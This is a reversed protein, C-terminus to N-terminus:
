KVLWPLPISLEGKKIKKIKNEIPKYRITRIDPVKSEEFLSNVAKKITPAGKHFAVFSGVTQGISRGTEEKAGILPALSEGAKGLAFATGAVQAAKKVGGFPAAATIFLDRVEDLDKEFRNQPELYGEPLKEELYPRTRQRISETTPLPTQSPLNTETGTIKPAAWNAIDLAGQTVDGALGGITEAGGIGLRTINRLIPDEKIGGPYVPGYDTSQASSKAPELPEGAVLKFAM